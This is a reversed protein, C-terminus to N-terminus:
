WASAHPSAQQPPLSTQLKWFHTVGPLLQSSELSQAASSYQSYESPSFVALSAPALSPPVHTPPFVKMVPFHKGLGGTQALASAPASAPAPVEHRSCHSTTGGLMANSGTTLYLQPPSIVAGYEVSTIIAGITMWSSSSLQSPLTLAASM